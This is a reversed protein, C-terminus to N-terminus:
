PSSGAGLEVVEQDILDDVIDAVDCAIFARGASSSAALHDIVEDITRNGDLATWLASASGGLSMTRGSQQHVIVVEDGITWSTVNRSRCLLPGAPALVQHVEPARDCPNEPMQELMDRVLSGDSYRVLISRANAALAVMGEWEAPNLRSADFFHSLLKTVAQGPSLQTVDVLDHSSRDCFVIRSVAWPGPTAPDAMAGPSIVHFKSDGVEGGDNVQAYHGDFLHRGHSKIVVPRRFGGVTGDPHLNVVEDTVYGWGNLCLNGIM